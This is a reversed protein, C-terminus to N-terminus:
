AEAASVLVGALHQHRPSFVGTVVYFPIGGEAVDEFSRRVTGSMNIVTFKVIDLWKLAKFGNLEFQVGIGFAILRASSVNRTRTTAGIRMDVAAQPEQIPKRTCFAQLPIGINVDYAGTNNYTHIVVLVKILRRVINRHCFLFLRNEFM